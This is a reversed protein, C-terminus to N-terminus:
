WKGVLPLDGVQGFPGLCRDVQCGDFLGNGNLDLEWLGTKPDFVGIKTAGTGTWDAVVPVDGPQGFPGLCRDVQCGDFLGNGNLDLEVLATKPDYVGIRATGSGTWDGVLPLDGVQGFPGLCRDVQCGDFLGNGNRDFQWTGTSPKFVGLTANGGDIWSGVVPLDGSAGFPGACVDETCGDWIGNNNLDLRWLGTSSRFIGIQAGTPHFSSAANAAQTYASSSGTIKNGRKQPATTTNSRVTVQIANVKAEGILPSFGLNLTGDQVTVAVTVIYATNKGVKAYIDLKSLVQQGEATVNFVRKQPRSWYTEAFHLTVNYTGNPVPIAYSFTGLRDSQYLPDADTGAIAASSVSIRGGSFATDALYVTGDPASYQPGGANAAFVLTTSKFTATVTTNATMTLTCTGSGTCAGSWGSFISGPAPTATLTISTGSPYSASCDTGCSIGAPTSSVTGSGTGEKGVTLTFSQLATTGCSENSYASYATANFARVRYCYPTGEALNADTYTTSNAAVQAVQTFTGAIGTKREIAFGSENTSNDTWTLTLQAGAATSHGTPALLLITFTCVTQRFVRSRFTM